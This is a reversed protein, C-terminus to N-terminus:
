AVSAEKLLIVACVSLTVALNWTRREKGTVRSPVAVRFKTNIIEVSKSYLNLDILM